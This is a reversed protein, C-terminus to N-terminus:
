EKENKCRGVVGNGGSGSVMEVVGGYWKWRKIVGNGSSFLVNRSSSM